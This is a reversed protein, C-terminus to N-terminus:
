FGGGVLQFRCGSPGENALQVLYQYLSGTGACSYVPSGNEQIQGVECILQYAVQQTALPVDPEGPLPRAMAWQPGQDSGPPWYFQMTITTNPALYFVESIEWSM